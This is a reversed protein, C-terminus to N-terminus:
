SRLISTVGGCFQKIEEIAEDPLKFVPYLTEQIKQIIEEATEAQATKLTRFKGSWYRCVFSIKYGTKRKHVAIFEFGSWTPGLPITLKGSM